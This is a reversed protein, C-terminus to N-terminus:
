KRIPAASTREEWREVNVGMVVLWLFVSVEGALGCALNWPFLRPSLYTLWGLGGIAILAGLIRPLFRSRFILTGILICFVGHFVMAFDTGHAKLQIAELILGVMNCAAALLSLSRSVPRFLVYLILTVALMGVIEIVGAALNMRGPFLWELLQATLLTLFYLGGAIRANLRPSVGRIREMVIAAASM